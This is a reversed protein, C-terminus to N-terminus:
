KKAVFDAAAPLIAVVGGVISLIAAVVWGAGLHFYQVSDKDVGNASTFAGVTFFLLVGAVVLACVAVLNLVGAFKDLAKVKLLPLIVGLLLIVLAVIILIWAILATVAPKTVANGLITEETKGFLVTTGAFNTIVVKGLLEVKNFVGVTAMLLVFAVIGLVLAALGAFKLAKKM